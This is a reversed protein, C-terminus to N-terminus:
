DELIIFLFRAPGLAEKALKSKDLLEGVQILHKANKKFIGEIRSSSIDAISLDPNYPFDFPESIDGHSITRVKTSEM